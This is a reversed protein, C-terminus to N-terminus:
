MNPAIPMNFITGSSHMISNPGILYYQSIDPERNNYMTALSGAKRLVAPHYEVEM